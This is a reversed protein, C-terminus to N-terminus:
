FSGNKLDKYMVKYLVEGLEELKYPKAVMGVFGHEKYDALVTDNAYGSSVIAKVDPDIKLLEQVAESGGMAGRVTLDMIVAVFPNRQSQAQKYHEIAEEGDSAFEVAYGLFSLMEGAVERVGPQDDMFLVRGCGALFLKNVNESELKGTSAPLFVTVTTGKGPISNVILYGGHRKIISYSITLGLGNGFEKTTFYPDFIKDLHEKPIGVGQDVVSIQVYKGPEIIGPLAASEVNGVSIHITGGDPMAQNANIVFNSIVQSIQGADIDVPWLDEAFNFEYSVNSGRLAFTRANEVVDKISATRKIPAGGKSFTLLQQTLEKTQLTANEIEKAWRHVKSDKDVYNNVLSLNGLIVTLLNNFDHAIGGALIGISELKDAKLREAELQKQETIDRILWRLREVTGASNRSTAVTVAAPFPEQRRCHLQLQLDRICELNGRKLQTLKSLFIDMETASIFILLPKGVLFQSNAGLLEAAAQNAELIVGDLDTILYGNPAFEFLEQYRIREQVASQRSVALEENQASLEVRVTQLEELSAALQHIVDAALKEWQGPTRCEKSEINVFQQLADKIYRDLDGVM